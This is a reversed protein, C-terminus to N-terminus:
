FKLGAKRAGEALAKVRGHYLYGNRDFIITDIKAELAKKAVLEGVIFSVKLKSSLKKEKKKKGDGEDEAPQSLLAKVEAQNSNASALTRGTLDDIIQAYIHMNSRFVSLRPTPKKGVIMKRVHKKRRIRAAVKKNRIKREM